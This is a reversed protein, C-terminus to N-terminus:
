KNKKKTLGDKFFGGRGWEWDRLHSYLQGPGSELPPSTDWTWSILAMFEEAETFPDSVFMSYILSGIWALSFLEQSNEIGVAFSLNSAGSSELSIHYSGSAAM